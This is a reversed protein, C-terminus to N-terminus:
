APNKDAAIHAAAKVMEQTEKPIKAVDIGHCGCSDDRFELAGFLPAMSPCPRLFTASSESGRGAANQFRSRHHSSGIAPKERDSRRQSGSSSINSTSKPEAHQRVQQFRHLDHEKFRGKAGDAKIQAPDTSDACAIRPFKTKGFTMRLFEPCAPAAMGLLLVHKFKAKKIDAAIKKFVDVQCTTKERCHGALWGRAEDTGTWVSADRQWAGVKDNKEL